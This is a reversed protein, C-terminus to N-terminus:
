HTRPCTDANPPGVNLVHTAYGLPVHWGNYVDALEFAAIEEPTSLGRSVVYPVVRCASLNRPLRMVPAHLAAYFDWAEVDVHDGHCTLPSANGDQSLHITAACERAVPPGAAGRLVGMPDNLPGSSVVLENGTYPLSQSIVTGRHASSPVRLVYRVGQQCRRAVTRAETLTLGVFDLVAGCSRVASPGGTASAAPRPSRYSEGALLVSLVLAVVLARRM